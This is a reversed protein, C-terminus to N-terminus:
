HPGYDIKVGAARFVEEVKQRGKISAERWEHILHLVRQHLAEARKEAGSEEGCYDAIQAALVNGIDVNEGSAKILKVAKVVGELVLTQADLQVEIESM